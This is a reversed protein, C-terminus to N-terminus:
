GIIEKAQDLELRPGFKAVVQSAAKCALNGADEFSKGQCIQSLFAGAFMDGAGNSDVAKIEPANIKIMKQGDWLVAGHAGRTIVFTKAYDKMKEFSTEVDGQDTFSCAEVENAFLLDVKDGIIEKMGDKFFTVMNPDSLTLSTKVGKEEAWKRAQIAAEKGTPSAVLYGEIYLYESDELATKDLEKESYDATTGLFTNMTRQADPTVLVLCKGTIGDSLKASLNNGIGNGSLDEAYFKGYDDNAVRCSYFSSGGFQKVAIMSNAASGGCAKNPNKLHKLLEEQREEEVLTMLGKEIKMEELFSDNVEFELDVLANGIGYVNYKAAM